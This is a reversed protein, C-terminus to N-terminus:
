ILGFDLVIKRIAESYNEKQFNLNGLPLFDEADKESRKRNGIEAEKESGEIVHLEKVESQPSM